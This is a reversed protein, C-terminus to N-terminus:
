ACFINQHSIDQHTPLGTSGMRSQTQGPVAALSEMQARLDVARVSTVDLLLIIDLFFIDRSSSSKRWLLGASQSNSSSRFYARSLCSISTPPKFTFNRYGILYKFITTRKIHSDELSRRMARWRCSFFRLVAIDVRRLLNVTIIKSDRGSLSLVVRTM